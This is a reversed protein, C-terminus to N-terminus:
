CGRARRLTLLRARLPRAPDDTARQVVASEVRFGSSAAIAPFAEAATRFSDAILVSGGPALHRALFEAIPTLSRREYLVDSALIRDVCLDPYSLRWDVHRLQPVPLGNHRANAAVFALADDDYDSAIVDYGRRLAVLSVLGLGCGLELVRPRRGAAEARPWAAVADALLLSTPWFEAWYPMYEDRQFRAAVRPDDVLKEYEAPGLLEFDLEAVRVRRRLVAYGALQQPAASLGADPSSPDRRAPASSSASPDM